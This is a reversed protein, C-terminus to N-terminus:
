KLLFSASGIEHGECYLNVFYTGPILEEAVDWYICMDIDANAYELERKESYVLSEEGFDFMGADPSSLVVEDPRIIRMYVMKKGPDAVTNELVTLCVRLKLIKKIKDKVKSNSNLGEAHINKAALKKALQVTSSLEDREKSVDDYDESLKQYEGRVQINEATLEQNRTNLSDIQVVYSRMVKRLTELENQYMKIKTASSAQRKLLQRIRDQEAGLQDSLSDSKVKLSDYNVILGNLEEELKGKEGEIYEINEQNKRNSTYLTVALLIAIVALTILIAILYMPVKKRPSPSAGSTPTATKSEM